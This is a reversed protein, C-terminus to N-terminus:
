PGGPPPTPPPPPRPSPPPPAAPGGGGSVRPPPRPDLALAEALRSVSSLRPQRRGAELVSISHASVGSRDALEDQTWGVSLRCDRLLEGFASGGVKGGSVTLRRFPVLWDSWVRDALQTREVARRPHCTGTPWWCAGAASPACSRGRGQRAEM